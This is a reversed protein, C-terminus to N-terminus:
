DSKIMTETLKFLTIDFHNTAGDIGVVCVIRPAICRDIVTADPRYAIWKNGIKIM